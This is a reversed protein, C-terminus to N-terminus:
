VGQKAEGCHSESKNDESDMLNWHFQKAKTWFSFTQRSGGTVEYQSLRANSWFNSFKDDAEWQSVANNSSNTSPSLRKEM